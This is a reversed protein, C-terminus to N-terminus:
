QECFRTAGLISGPVEPDAALFELWYVVSATRSAIYDSNNVADNFSCCNFLYIEISGPYRLRYLFQGITQAVSSYFGSERSFCSIKSKDM